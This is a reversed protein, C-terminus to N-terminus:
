MGSTGTQCNPDEIRDQARQANDRKCERAYTVADCVENPTALRVVTSIEAAYMRNDAAIFLLPAMFTDPLEMIWDHLADKLEEVSRASSFDLDPDDSDGSDIWHQIALDNPWLLKLPTADLPTSPALIQDASM